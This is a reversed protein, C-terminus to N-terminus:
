FPMGNEGNPIIKNRCEEIIFKHKIKPDKGVVYRIIFEASIPHYFSFASLNPYCYKCKSNKMKLSTIGRLLLGKFKKSFEIIIEDKFKFSYMTDYGELASLYSVDLNCIAEVVCDQIKELERHKSEDDVGLFKEVKVIIENSMSILEDENKPEGWYCDSVITIDNIVVTNNPGVGINKDFKRFYDLVKKRLRIAGELRLYEEINKDAFVENGEEDINFYGEMFVHGGEGIQNSKKKPNTIIIYEVGSSKLVLEGWVNTYRELMDDESINEIGKLYQWYEKASVKRM